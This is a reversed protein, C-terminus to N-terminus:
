LDTGNRKENKNDEMGLCYLIINYSEILKDVSNGINSANKDISIFLKSQLEQITEFDKTCIDAVILDANNIEWDQLVEPLNTIIVDISKIKPKPNLIRVKLLEKKKM